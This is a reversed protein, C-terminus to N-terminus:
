SKETPKKRATRKAPATKVVSSQAKTQQQHQHYLYLGAIGAVGILVLWLIDLGSSVPQPQHFNPEPKTLEKWLKQLDAVQLPKGTAEQIQLQQLVFDSDADPVAAQIQALTLLQPPPWDNPGSPQYTDQDKGPLVFPPAAAIYTQAHGPNEVPRSPRILGKRHMTKVYAVVKDHLLNVLEKPNGNYGHIMGVVTKAEGYMGNRPPQIVIAPVGHAELRARLSAMWVAQTPDDMSRSQYHVHSDKPSEVNVWAKLDTSHQLDYKLRECPKCNKGTILTVYWKDSDDEPPALAESIVNSEDSQVSGTEQVMEGRRLIEHEAQPPVDHQAVAFVPCFILLLFLLQKM